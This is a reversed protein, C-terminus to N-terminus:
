ILIRLSIPTGLNIVKHDKACPILFCCLEYGRGKVVVEEMAEVAGMVEVEMAGMMVEMAGMAGM